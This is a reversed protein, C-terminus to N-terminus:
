FGINFCCQLMRVKISLGDKRWEQRPQYYSALRSHKDTFDCIGPGGQSARQEGHKEAITPRYESIERYRACFEPFHRENKYSM